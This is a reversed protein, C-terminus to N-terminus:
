MSFTGNLRRSPSRQIWIVNVFFSLILNLALNRFSIMLNIPITLKNNRSLHLNYVKECWVWFTSCYLVECVIEGQCIINNYKTYLDCINRTTGTSRAWFISIGMKCWMCLTSFCLFITRTSLYSYGYSSNTPSMHAGEGWDSSNQLHVSAFLIDWDNWGNIQTHTPADCIM